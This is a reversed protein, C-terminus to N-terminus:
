FRTVERVHAELEEPTTGNGMYTVLQAEAAIMMEHQKWSGMQTKTLTQCAQRMRMIDQAGYKM